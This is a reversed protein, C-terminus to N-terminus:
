GQGAVNWSKYILIDALIHNSARQVGILLDLRSLSENNPVLLFVNVCCNNKRYPAFNKFQAELASIPVLSKGNTLFFQSFPQPCRKFSNPNSVSVNNVKVNSCQGDEAGSNLNTTIIDFHYNLYVYKECYVKSHVIM